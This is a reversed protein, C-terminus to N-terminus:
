KKALKKQSIKWSSGKIGEIRKVGKLFLNNVKYLVGM